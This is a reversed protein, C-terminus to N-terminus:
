LGWLYKELWEIWYKDYVKIIESWIIAFDTFKLVNEVDDRTKVWFWVWIPIKFIKKLNNIYEEFDKWFKIQSWTTMNKSIAYIFWSSISSISKLRKNTTNPSVVQILHIEYKKCLNILENWEKEDYPIDPIIFGYVWIEKSYKVFKEVGYNYVINYYTMIIIKTDVKKINEKIFDFCKETTVWNKLTIDNAWSIVPWDAIPDSFPFQIEVFESYKSLINLIKSSENLSPYGCVLHTMLKKKM